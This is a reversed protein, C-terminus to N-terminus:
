VSKSSKRFLVAGRAFRYRNEVGVPVGDDLKATGVADTIQVGDDRIVHLAQAFAAARQRQKQIRLPVNQGLQLDVRQLFLQQQKRISRRAFARDRREIFEDDHVVDRQAVHRLLETTQGDCARASAGHDSLGTTQREFSKGLLRDRFHINISDRAMQDAVRTKTQRARLYDGRALM